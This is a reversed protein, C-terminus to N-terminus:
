LRHRRRSIYQHRLTSPAVSVESHTRFTASWTYITSAAHRTPASKGKNHFHFSHSPLIVRRQKSTSLYFRAAKALTELFARSSIRPGSLSSFVQCKCKRATLGSYRPLPTPFLNTSYTVSLTLIFISQSVITHDLHDVIRNSWKAKRVSHRSIYFARIQTSSPPSPRSQHFHFLPIRM